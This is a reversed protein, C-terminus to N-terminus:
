FFCSRTKIKRKNFRVSVPNELSDEYTLLARAIQTSDIIETLDIGLKRCRRAALIAYAWANREEIVFQALDNASLIESMNYRDIRQLLRAIEVEDSPTQHSHGSEHLFSAIKHLYIVNHSLRDSGIYVKDTNEIVTYGDPSYGTLAARTDILFIRKDSNLNPLDISAKTKKNTAVLYKYPHLLDEEGPFSNNVTQSLDKPVEITYDFVETTLLSGIFNRRVLLGNVERVNDSPGMPDFNDALCRARERADDSTFTPSTSFAQEIAEYMEKGVIDEMKTAQLRNLVEQQRPIVETEYRQRVIKLENQYGQSTVEEM